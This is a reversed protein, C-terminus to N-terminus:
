FLRSDAPAKVFRVKLWVALTGGFAAAGLYLLVFLVYNNVRQLVPSNFSYLFTVAGAFAGLVFVILNLLTVRFAPVLALIISGLVAYACCYAMYTVFNLLM